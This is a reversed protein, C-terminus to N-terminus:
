KKAEIEKELAAEDLIPKTFAEAMLEYDRQCEEPTEGGPGIGDETWSLNGDDNYVEAIEYWSTNYKALEPTTKIHRKILRYMWTM